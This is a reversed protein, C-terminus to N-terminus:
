TNIHNNEFAKFYDKEVNIYAVAEEYYKFLKYTLEVDEFTSYM